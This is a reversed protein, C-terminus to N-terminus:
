YSEEKKCTLYVYVIKLEPPSRAYFGKRPMIYGKLDPKIINIQFKQIKLSAAFAVGM